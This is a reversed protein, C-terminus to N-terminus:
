PMGTPTSPAPVPVAARQFCQATPMQRPDGSTRLTWCEPAPYLNERKIFEWGKDHMCAVYVEVSTSSGRCADSARLRETGYEGIEGVGQLQPFQLVPLRGGCAAAGLALVGFL